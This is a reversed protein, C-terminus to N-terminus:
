FITSIRTGIVEEGKLFRAVTEPHSGNIIWTDVRHELVFPILFPDTVDTKLPTTIEAVLVENQQIGDVSKLLLLEGHLTAAVWAAITDSTVDWSHPLPDYKRMCTSPLLICTVDPIVLSETVPLGFSAVFRGYTDMAEIAKWHSIEDDLGAEKVADAFVGGGPVILLPRPSSRLILALAPVHAHLSGGLKVVLPTVISGTQRHSYM